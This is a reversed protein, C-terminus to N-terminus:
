VTAGGCSSGSGATCGYCHRRTVIPGFATPDFEAITRHGDARLALVNNFDCDYLTGDWGISLTNRCMLGEVAAPNFAAHLRHLYAATQRATELGELFRAIPMNTLTILRDFHIGHERALGSKWEREMGAAASPIFAGVPNHMLTLRRRPDDRGYGAANLLRLAAVSKDFTGDGRQRDTSPRRWHPLSAVVEVGQAALFTPLDAFQPLLLVTLNCRDIVHRGRSACAEVFWRFHPNLEPAGGTIDVTHAECRDVADLVRELTARNMNAVTQDPGADVHCHRCVMNCLRGIHVQLVELRGRLLPPLGAARLRAEFPPM